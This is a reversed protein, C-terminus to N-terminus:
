KDMTALVDNYYNLFARKPREKLSGLLVSQKITTNGQMTASGIRVIKGNGVELYVPVLMKFTEDVNSQTIKFNLVPGNPGNDISHEFRYNPLTTGYVYPDFFWDLKKNGDLDMEKSMHKEVMAKFDETSAPKNTYTKVFDRMMEKFRQDGTSNWMMMRIMHLIYGGKPYILKRTIDYGSKANSLRYGLTVPGVDVARFGEKNKETLLEKEDNWFKIFEQPNKQIVQIFLSASM